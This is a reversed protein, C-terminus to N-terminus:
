AKSNVWTGRQWILKSCSVYLNKIEEENLNIKESDVLSKENTDDNKLQELQNVGNTNDFFEKTEEIMALNM